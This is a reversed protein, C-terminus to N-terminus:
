MVLAVCCLFGCTGLHTEPQATIKPPLFAFWMATVTPEVSVESKLQAQSQNGIVEM